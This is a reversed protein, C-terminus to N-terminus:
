GEPAHQAVLDRVLIRRLSAGLESLDNLTEFSRRRTDANNAHLTPGIGQTLIEVEREAGLRFAKLHRPEIGYRNFEIALRSITLATSDFLVGNGIRHGVIMGYKELDAVLSYPCGAQDALQERTLAVSSGPISAPVAEEPEAETEPESAADAQSDSEGHAPQTADVDVEPEAKDAQARISKGKNVQSEGSDAPSFGRAGAAALYASVTASNQTGELPPVDSNRQRPSEKAPIEADLPGDESAAVADDLANPVRDLRDRSGGFGAGGSAQGM